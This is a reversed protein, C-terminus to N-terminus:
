GLTLFNQISLDNNGQWLKGFCGIELIDSCCDNYHHCLQDCYCSGSTSSVSCNLAGSDCCGQYGNEVCSGIVHM